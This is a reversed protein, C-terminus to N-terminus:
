EISATPVSMQLRREGPAELGGTHRVRIIRLSGPPMRNSAVVIAEAEKTVCSLTLRSVVDSGREDARGMSYYAPPDAATELSLAHTLQSGTSVGTQSLSWVRSGPLQFVSRTPEGLLVATQIGPCGRM